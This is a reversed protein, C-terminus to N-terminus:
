QPRRLLCAGVLATFPAVLVLGMSGVLTKVVEAAVHPHNLFEWPSIGEAAFMMLLTLYGGSYALLLTTTMTGVVSRGIRFGSAALARRSLGPRHAAVEDMGAAVDMGLDMVAGSSALFIGGIFLDTLNLNGFGSYILTQSYPMVAGNVRFIHTFLISLVCGTLIGLMSGAFATVGKRNWGAVIFIIVATLLTVAGLTVAIPNWGRLCLPIVLQWLVQCSFIFSILAKLGTLGGFAILILAFAAFLWLAREVTFFEQANVTSQGPVSGSLVGILIVDGPRYLKDLEIQARLLNQAAFHQGTRDGRLVEVELEQHGYTLLGQMTVFRNDVTLVRAPVKEGSQRVPSPPALHITQLAAGFALFFLIWALDARNKRWFDRVRRRIM